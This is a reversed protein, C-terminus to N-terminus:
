VLVLYVIRQELEVCLELHIDPCGLHHCHDRTLHPFDLCPPYLFLAVVLFGFTV